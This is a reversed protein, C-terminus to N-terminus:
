TMLFFFNCVLLYKYIQKYCSPTHLFIIKKALKLSNQKAFIAPGSIKQYIVISNKKIIHITSKCSIKSNFKNQFIDDLGLIWLPKKPCGTYYVHFTPYHSFEDVTLSFILAVIPLKVM